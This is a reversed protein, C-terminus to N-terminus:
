VSVSLTSSCTELAVSSSAVSFLASFLSTESLTSTVVLFDLAVAFVLFGAAVFFAVALLAFFLSSSVVSGEGALAFFTFFLPDESSSFALYHGRIIPQHPHLKM